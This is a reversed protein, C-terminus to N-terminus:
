RRAFMVFGAVGVGTLISGFAVVKSGLNILTKQFRKTQSQAKKLGKTFPGTKAVLNVFLSGVSRARAM